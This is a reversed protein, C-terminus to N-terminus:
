CNTKMAAFYELPNGCNTGKVLLLCRSQKWLNAPLVNNYVDNPACICEKTNPLMHLPLFKLLYHLCNKKRKKLHLCKLQYLFLCVFWLSWFYPYHILDLSKKSWYRIYNLPFLFFYNEVVALVTPYGHAFITVEIRVGYFVHVCM